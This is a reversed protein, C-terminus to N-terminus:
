MKSYVNENNPLPKKSNMSPANKTADVTRKLGYLFESSNKATLGSILSDPQFGYVNGLFMGQLRGSIERSIKDVATEALGHLIGMGTKKLKELDGYQDMIDQVRNKIPAISKEFLQKGLKKWINDQEEASGLTSAYLALQYDSYKMDGLVDYFRYSNRVYRYNFTFDNLTIENGANDVTHFGNASEWPLFECESLDYCVHNFIDPSKVYIHEPANTSNSSIEQNDDYGRKANPISALAVVDDDNVLYSGKPYLYISIDFRRLNVPLVWVGRVEDWAIQRYMSNLAQMKLDVTELTGITIIDDETYREWPKKSKLESIGEITQFLWPNVMSINQLHEIFKECIDARGSQGIRKLYAVASNVNNGNALLGSTGDFRFFLKFGLSFPDNLNNHYHFNNAEVQVKSPMGTSVGFQELQKSAVSNLDIKFAMNIKKFKYYIYEPM